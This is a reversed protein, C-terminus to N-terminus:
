TSREFASRALEMRIWEPRWKETMTLLCQQASYRNRFGFQYKSLIPDFYKNIQTHLCREYIKSLNPLISVPRYNEKDSRSDKKHIPKIDAQKLSVPFVSNEIMNNFNETIFTAFIDYNEKIVNTPIDNSLSAKSEDLSKTENIIENLTVKMRLTTFHDFM